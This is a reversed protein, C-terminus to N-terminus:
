RRLMRAHARADETLDDETFPRTPWATVPDHPWEPRSGEWWAVPVPRAIEFVIPLTPVLCVYVLLAGPRGLNDLKSSHRALSAPQGHRREWCAGVWLDRKEFRLRVKM